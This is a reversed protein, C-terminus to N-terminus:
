SVLDASLLMYSIPLVNLLKKLFQLLKMTYPYIIRYQLLINKGNRSEQLPGIIDIAVLSWIQPAVPITNLPPADSSIKPNAAFCKKCAKCHNQVDLKM